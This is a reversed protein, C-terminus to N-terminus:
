PNGEDSKFLEYKLQLVVSFIILGGFILLWWIPEERQAIGISDSYDSYKEEYISVLIPLAGFISMIFEQGYDEIFKYRYFLIALLGGAIAWGLGFFQLPIFFFVWTKICFTALALWNNKIWSM